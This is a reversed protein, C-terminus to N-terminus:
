RLLTNEVIQRNNRRATVHKDVFQLYDPNENLRNNIFMDARWFKVLNDIRVQLRHRELNIKLLASFAGHKMKLKHFKTKAKAAKQRVARDKELEQFM